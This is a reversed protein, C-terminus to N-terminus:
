RVEMFHKNNMSFWTDSTFPDGNRHASVDHLPTLEAFLGSLLEILNDLWRESTSVLWHYFKSTKKRFISIFSGIWRGIYVLSISLTFAM